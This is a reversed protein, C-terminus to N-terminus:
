IRDCLEAFLAMAAFTALGLVIMGVILMALEPRRWKLCPRM